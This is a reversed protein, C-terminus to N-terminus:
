RVHADLQALGLRDCRDESGVDFGHRLRFQNSIRRLAARWAAYRLRGTRKELSSSAFLLVEHCLTLQDVGARVLTVYTAIFAAAESLRGINPAGCRRILALM